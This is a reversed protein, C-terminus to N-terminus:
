AVQGSHPLRRPGLDHRPAPDGIEVSAHLVSRGDPRALVPNLALSRLRPQEDAM